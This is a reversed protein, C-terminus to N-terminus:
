QDRGTQSPTLSSHTDVVHLSHCHPHNRPFHFLFFSVSLFVKICLGITFSARQPTADAQVSLIYM